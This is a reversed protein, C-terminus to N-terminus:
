LLCFLNRINISAMDIELRYYYLVVPDPQRAGSVSIMTQICLTRFTLDSKAYSRKNQLLSAAPNAATTAAVCETREIM